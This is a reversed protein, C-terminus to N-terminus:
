ILKNNYTTDFTWDHPHCSKEVLEPNIVLMILSRSNMLLSNHHVERHNYQKNNNETIHANMPDDKKTIMPVMKMMMKGDNGQNGIDFITTLMELIKTNSCGRIYLYSKILKGVKNEQMEQYYRQVQKYKIGARKTVRWTLSQHNKSNSIISGWITIKRITVQTIQLQNSYKKKINEKCSM